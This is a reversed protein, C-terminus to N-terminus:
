LLWDSWGRWRPTPLRGDPFLLVLFTISSFVAPLFLWQGLWAGVAAGPLHLSPARNPYLQVIVTLNLDLAALILIWGVWNRPVRAVLLSGVFALALIVLELLGPPGYTNALAVRDTLLLVLYLAALCLELAFFGWPVSLARNRM